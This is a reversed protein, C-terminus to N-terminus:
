GHEHNGGGTVVVNLSDVGLRGNRYIDYWEKFGKDNAFEIRTVYGMGGQYGGTM